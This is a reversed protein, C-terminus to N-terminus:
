LCLFGSGLLLFLLATNFAMASNVDKVYFCLLPVNIIYGTLATIGALGTVLGTVKFILQLKGSNLITAMGAFAILIFSLMTPVSPRGPTVTNVLSGTDRIFLDEEGTRVGFLASLFLTGMILVIALSVISLVIQAADFEGEDSVVISYLAIGSLFFTFATSLKMSVWLPSISKLLGIEFIWGTIVALGAISVALALVKATNRKTGPTM